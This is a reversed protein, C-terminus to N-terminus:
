HNIFRARAPGFFAEDMKGASHLSSEGDSGRALPAYIRPCFDCFWLDMAYRYWRCSYLLLPYYRHRRSPSPSFTLTLLNLNLTHGGFLM